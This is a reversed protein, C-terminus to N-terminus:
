YISHRKQKNILFQNLKLHLCKEKKSVYKIWLNKYEDILDNTIFNGYFLKANISNDILEKSKLEEIFNNGKEVQDQRIDIGYADYGMMAALLTNRGLGCGIELFLPKKNNTFIKSNNTKFQALLEPKLESQGYGLRKGRIGGYRYNFVEKDFLEMVSQINETM